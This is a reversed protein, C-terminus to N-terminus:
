MDDILDKHREFFCKPKSQYTKCSAFMLKTKTQQKYNTKKAVM